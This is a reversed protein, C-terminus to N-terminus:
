EWGRVKNTRAYAAASIKGEVGRSGFGGPVLVGGAASLKAWAATRTPEPAGDELDSAEVWELQLNRVHACCLHSLTHLHSHSQSPSQCQTGSTARRWGRSSCAAPAPADSTPLTHSPVHPDPVSSSGAVVSPAHTRITRRAGGKWRVSKMPLEKFRGQELDGSLDPAGREPGLGSLPRPRHSDTLLDLHGATGCSDATKSSLSMLSAAPLFDENCGRELM